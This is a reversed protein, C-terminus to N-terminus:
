GTLVRRGQRVAGSGVETGSRAMRVGAWDFVVGVAKKFIGLHTPYYYDSGFWGKDRYYRHDRNDEGLQLKMSTRGMRFVMLGILSPAPYAPRLLQDHFRRSQKELNKDMQLKAKETMPELTRIVSGKVVNFGLGGGVFDLYKRVKRGGYIGQVVISTSTKGHFRPRHFVFGLRDLFLKMIASVQFSYNPSAFVIGDSTMMKEILVDRDDKLPCREEGKEFCTKCGRCLGIDYDSLVVIEGQVDGFSELDELFRCAATYTAGGKHGSGVFATVKKM